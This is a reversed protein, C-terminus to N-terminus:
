IQELQVDELLVSVGQQLFQVAVVLRQEGHRKIVYGETGIMSGSKIRVMMGPKIRAEPSLPAESGVLQRIQVLDHWLQAADPIALCRSVCNTTLARQRQDGDAYLFVYGPFLPVYSHRVRGSPSRSRRKILPGYHAISMQRLRRMFDKERRALTYVAWWHCDTPLNGEPRDFLTEPFVDPEKPLIPM